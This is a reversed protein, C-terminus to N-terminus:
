LKGLSNGEPFNPSADVWFPDQSIKNMSGLLTTGLNKSCPLEEVEWAGFFLVSHTKSEDLTNQIWWTDNSYSNSHLSNGTVWTTALRWLHTLWFISSFKGPNETHFFVCVCVCFFFPLWWAVEYSFHAKSWIERWVHWFFCEGKDQKCNKPEIYGLALCRRHRFSISQYKNSM